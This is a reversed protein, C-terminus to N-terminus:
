LLENTLEQYTEVHSKLEFRLYNIIELHADEDEVPDDEGADIMASYFAINKAELIVAPDDIALVQTRGDEITKMVFREIAM